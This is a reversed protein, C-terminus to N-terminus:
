CRKQSFKSSYFGLAVRMILFGGCELFWSQQQRWFIAVSAVGQVLLISIHKKRYGHFPHGSVHRQQYLM